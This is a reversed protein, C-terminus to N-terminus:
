RQPNRAKLREVVAELAALEEDTASDPAKLLEEVRSLLDRVTILDTQMALAPSDAADVSMRLIQSLGASTAAGLGAFGEANPIGLFITTKQEAGRPLAKPEFYYSIASDGISYPLLNFNRGSSAQAKWPADNIRKWNAFHLSDPAEFGEPAISGMIGLGDTESVWWADGDTKAALVTEAAIERKDTKFHAQQKEALNTDLVFRLGAKLERDSKNILTFDIRLGDALTSGSLRVFSFDQYAVLSSSEFVLRAGADTKEARTRFSTSEGLRHSRDDILLTSFSTRPDKDVFLPEYRNKQIDALFYASFRGSSEHLVLKLRGERVELATAAFAISAFLLAHLIRKM